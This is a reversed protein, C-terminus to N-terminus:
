GEGSNRAKGIGGNVFTFSYFPFIPFLISAIVRM